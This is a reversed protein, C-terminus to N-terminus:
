LQFNNFVGIDIDLAKCIKYLTSFTVNVKGCELTAITTKSSDITEALEEQSWDKKSRAYKIIHGLKLLLEDKQM